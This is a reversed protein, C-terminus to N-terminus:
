APNLGFNVRCVPPSFVSRGAISAHEPDMRRLPTYTRKVPQFSGFPRPRLYREKRLDFLVLLGLPASFLKVAFAAASRSSRCFESRERRSKEPRGAMRVFVALQLESM